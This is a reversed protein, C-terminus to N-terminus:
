QNQDAEIQRWLAVNRNHEALTAAFAHGGTGDAVFFLFETEVPNLVAEISARGPNAIPTPPLGDIQYTNYPTRANLESRRLGRGLIRRGLTIGYIVTPDTQLRMPARLRNIFVSAVVPREEALGTEKEVISALILAEDPTALPLGEARSEWAASLTAVQRAQMEGILELRDAGRRVEYSDPALTGEAPDEDISGTLFEANTLAFWVQYSTTGEAVAIRYRTDPLEAIQQYREPLAETELPLTMVEGFRSTVPDLERLQYETNTVGVRLVIETGCTSAGGRTVIDLIEDMSASAPVLYSGFRLGRDRGDYQAGVRFLMGSSIAGEAQLEDTVGRLNAGRDVRFCIAQELPGQAVFARQAIGVLGALVVLGAILLTLANAAFHRWM